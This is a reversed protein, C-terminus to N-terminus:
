CAISANLAFEASADLEASQASQAFAVWEPSDALGSNARLAEIAHQAKGM